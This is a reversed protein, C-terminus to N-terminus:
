RVLTATAFWVITKSEVLGIPRAGSRDVAHCREVVCALGPRQHQCGARTAPEAAEFLEAREAVGPHEIVDDGGREGRAGPDRQDQGGTHLPVALRGSSYRSAQHRVGPTGYAWVVPLGGSPGEPWSSPGTAWVVRRSPLM